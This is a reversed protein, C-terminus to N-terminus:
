VLVFSPMFIVCNKAKLGCNLATNESQPCLASLICESGVELGLAYQGTRDNVKADDCADM